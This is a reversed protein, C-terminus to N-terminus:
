GLCFLRGDVTGIVLRGAAAAPSASLAGGAEFEQVVKGSATDLVFLKGESSGVYVRTGIVLPSSDIRARTMHTWAAKGTKADLAHLMRDRGGVFVRGGSVAASSYFPFKRDPHQYRWLIKQAKLDVAIVENEYTGYYARGEHIAPSAATYAGSSVAFVETGDKIRIARLIEDCGAIYVVGDVVAPTAHVYGETQIKWALSGDKAGLAYLLADRRTGLHIECVSEMVGLRRSAHYRHFGDALFVHKGDEFVVLPPFKAGDEMADRYEQVVGEHIEVRVQTDCDIRINALPIPKVKVRTQKEAVQSM